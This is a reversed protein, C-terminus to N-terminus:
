NLFAMVEYILKVFLYKNLAKEKDPGASVITFLSSITKARLSILSIQALLKM